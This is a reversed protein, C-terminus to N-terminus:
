GNAQQHKKKDDENSLHALIICVMHAAMLLGCAGLLWGAMGSLTSAPRLVEAVAQVDVEPLRSAIREGIIDRTTSTGVWLGGMLMGLAGIITTLSSAIASYVRPRQIALAFLLGGATFAAGMIFKWDM